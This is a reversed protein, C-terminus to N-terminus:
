EGLFEQIATVNKKLNPVLVAMGDVTRNSYGGEVPITLSEFTANKAVMAMPILELADSLGLDTEVADMNQIILASLSIMDLNMVKHFAAEIVQRQRSTRKFDNDIKRIRSFCLAQKGTLLQLGSENLLQDREDAGIKTNYFRLISNVQVREAESVDVEVGGIADIVNVLRDFNVAVYADVTVGFNQELTKELLSAGGKAYSANIRNSGRGPIKVYMDRLFSIMKITKNETDLQVLVTTDNRGRANESYSDTGILLLNYTSRINLDSDEPLVTMSDTGDGAMKELLEEETMVSNRGEAYLEDIRRRMEMIAPHKKDLAKDQKLNFMGNVWHAVGAVGSTADVAVMAPRNLIKDTDFINYIEEDKMLGDAHIGARTTNFWKGVFPTRPPVPLNMKESFYRAIDTIATLDM